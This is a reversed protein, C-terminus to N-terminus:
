GTTTYRMKILFIGDHRSADCNQANNGVCWGICTTVKVDQLMMKVESKPNRRHGHPLGVSWESIAIWQVMWQLLLLIAALSTVQSKKTLILDPLFVNLIWAAFCFKNILWTRMEFNEDMFFQMRWLEFNSLDWLICPSPALRSVQQEVMM